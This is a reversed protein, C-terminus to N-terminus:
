LDALSKSDASGGKVAVDRELSSSRKASIHFGGEEIEFSVISTTIKGLQGLTARPVLQLLM